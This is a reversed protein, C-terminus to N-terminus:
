NFKIKLMMTIKNAESITGKGFYSWYTELHGYWQTNDSRTLDVVGVKEIMSRDRIQYNLWMAPAVYYIVGKKWHKNSIQSRSWLAPGSGLLYLVPSFILLLILKRKRSKRRQIAAKDQKSVFGFM